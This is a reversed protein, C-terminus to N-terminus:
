VQGAGRDSTRECLAAIERHAPVNELYSRRSSADEIVGAREQLLHYAADLVEGARRDRNASLVRYCTLHVRMPELTGHQAPHDVVYDLIEDV